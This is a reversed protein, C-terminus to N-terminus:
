RGQKRIWAERFPESITPLKVVLVVQFQYQIVGINLHLLIWHLYVAFSKPHRQGQTM